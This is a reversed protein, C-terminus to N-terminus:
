PTARCCDWTSDAPPMWQPGPPSGDPSRGRMAMVHAGVVGVTYPGQWRGTVDLQAEPLQAEAPAAAFLPFLVGISLALSRLPIRALHPSMPFGCNFRSM